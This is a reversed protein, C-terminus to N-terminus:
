TESQLSLTQSVYFMYSHIGKNIINIWMMPIPLCVHLTRSLTVIFLISPTHHLLGGDIVSGTIQLFSGTLEVHTHSCEVLTFSPRLNILYGLASQQSAIRGEKGGSVMHM